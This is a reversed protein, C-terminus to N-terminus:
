DELESKFRDVTKKIDYHETAIERGRKGMSERLARDDILRTLKENWTEVDAPDALFGSAGDEVADVIGGQKAGVVPLGCAMAEIVAICQGENRSPQVYVDAAQLYTPIDAVLGDFFIHKELGYERIRSVLEHQKSGVAAIRIEIDPVESVLQRASEILLDYGKITEFRGVSVVVVRDRRTGGPKFVSTDVGGIPILVSKRSKTLANYTDFVKQSDCFIKWALRDILRKVLRRRSGGLFGSHEWSVIKKVGHLRGLVCGLVSSHYLSCVIIDPGFESIRQSLRVIRLADTVRKKFGLTEFPIGNAELDRGSSGDGMFLGVVRIDYDGKLETCIRAMAKEAGGTGLNTIIYMLKKM